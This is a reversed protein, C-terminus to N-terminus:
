RDQGDQSAITRQEECVWVMFGSQSAGAWQAFPQAELGFIPVPLVFDDGLLRDARPVPFGLAAELVSWLQKDLFAAVPKCLSPRVLDCWYTFRANISSRFVTWLAQRDSALVEATWPQWWPRLFRVSDLIVRFYRYFALLFYRTEPLNGIYICVCFFTFRLLLAPATFFM